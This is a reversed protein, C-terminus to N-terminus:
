IRSFLECNLVMKWLWHSFYHQKVTLSERNYQVDAAFVPFPGFVLEYPVFTFDHFTDSSCTKCWHKLDTWFGSLDLNLDCCFLMKLWTFYSISVHCQLVRVKKKASLITHRAHTCNIRRYKLLHCCCKITKTMRSRKTKKIGPYLWIKETESTVPSLRTGMKANPGRLPNLPRKQKLFM